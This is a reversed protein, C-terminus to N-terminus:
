RVWEAMPHSRGCDLCQTNPYQAACKPCVAGTAFTDFPAGCQNCRWFPGLVPQEHCDPCAYGARRPLKAVKLLVRAQMFGNWCNFVIFASLVGLWISHSLVAVVVLGAVGLLGIITAVMLSRARGLVYWLLARLIQGGDLPYIPLLNFCLLALNIMWIASVAAYANPMAAKFGFQPGLFVLATLVPALVANVLPGAALSWLTAGPRQPPNVYAVGGLPWLVIQRADGGVSRCALAHGFEHMLVLAFLAVYELANWFLSPYEGRRDNIEYLAIILWSWHLYVNIGFLRFLPISGQRSPLM